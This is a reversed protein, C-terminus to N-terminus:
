KDNSNEFRSKYDEELMEWIKDSGERLFIDFWKEARLGSGDFYCNAGDLYPCDKRFSEQGEYLPERSHVGVDAGMPKNLFHHGYSTLKYDAKGERIYSDITEPLLMGTFFLFQVAGKKGKLIMRCEVSHIGYNKKPDPHRKDFAPSFETIRELKKTM